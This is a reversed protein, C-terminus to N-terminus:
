ENKYIIKQVSSSSSISGIYMTQFMEPNNKVIPYINRRTSGSVGDLILHTIGERRFLELQERELEPTYEEGQVGLRAGKKDSLVYFLRPKISMVLADDPLNNKAWQAVDIFDDYAPGNGVASKAINVAVGSLNVVLMLALFVAGGLKALPNLPPTPVIRDLLSVVGLYTYYIIFPLLVSLYRIMVMEAPTNSAVLIILFLIV